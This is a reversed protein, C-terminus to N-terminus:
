SSTHAIGSCPANDPWPMADVHTNNTTSAIGLMNTHLLWRQLAAAITDGSHAPVQWHANNYYHSYFCQTHAICADCWVGNHARQLGQGQRQGDRAVDFLQASRMAGVLGASYHQFAAAMSANCTGKPMSCPLQLINALQWSDYQSQVAFINSRIFRAFNAPFLCDWAPSGAAAETQAEAGRQAVCQANLSASANALAFTERLAQGFVKVGRVNVRDMFFGADPLAAFRPLSAPLLSRVYDAHLYVALGGASHGSLVVSTAAAMGRPGLLHAIHAELIRRGRFYVKSGAADGVPMPETHDGSFSTGDCYYLYAVSWSCFAPNLKCDSSYINAGKITSPWSKSSGLRTRARAACAALAKGSTGRCWGGGQLIVLFKNSNAGTGRRFYYGPASGDLCVAGKERAAGTNLTLQLYGGAAAATSTANCAHRVLMSTCNVGRAAIARLHSRACTLCREYAASATGRGSSGGGCKYAHVVAYYCSHGRISSM